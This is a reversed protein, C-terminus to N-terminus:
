GTPWRNPFAALPTASVYVYNWQVPFDSYIGNRLKPSGFTVDPARELKGPFIPSPIPPYGFTGLASGSQSARYVSFASILQEQPPGNTCELVVRRPGGGSFSLTEQFARMPNFNSDPYDASLVVTYDRFTSGQAGEGNPYSVPSVVKVGTISSGSILSHL